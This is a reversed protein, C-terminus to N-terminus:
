GLLRESVQIKDARRPTLNAWDWADWTVLQSTLIEKIRMQHQNLPIHIGQPLSYLMSTFFFFFGPKGKPVHEVFPTNKWM